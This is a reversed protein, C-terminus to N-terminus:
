NQSIRIVNKKKKLNIVKMDSSKWRIISWKLENKMEIQMKENKVKM